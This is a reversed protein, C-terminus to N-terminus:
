PTATTPLASFHLAFGFEKFAELALKEAAQNGEMAATGAYGLLGARIARDLHGADEPADKFFDLRALTDTAWEFMEARGQRKAILAYMALAALLNGEVKKTQTIDMQM